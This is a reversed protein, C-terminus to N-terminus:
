TEDSVEIPIRDAEILQRFSPEVALLDLVDVKFPLDSESLETAPRAMRDLSIPREAELALDLDSYRRATGTARSGFVWVRTQQPLHNRLTDRVIALAEPSLDVTGSM